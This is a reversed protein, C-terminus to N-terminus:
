YREMVQNKWEEIMENVLLTNRGSCKYLISDHGFKELINNINDKISSDIVELSNNYLNEDYFYMSFYYYLKVTDDDLRGNLEKFIIYADKFSLIRAMAVGKNFLVEDIFKMNIDNYKVRDLINDYHKIALKYEKNILCKDAIMKARMMYDGEKYNVLINNILDIDMSNYLNNSRLITLIADTLSLKSIDRGICQKVFRCLYEDIFNEDILHINEFIVYSLEEITYIDKRILKCYYSEGSCKVCLKYNIEDNNDYLNDDERIIYEIKKLNAKFISGFGRNEVKIRLLNTNDIFDTTIKLISPKRINPFLAGVFISFKKNNFKFQLYDDDFILVNIYKPSDYYKYNNDIISHEVINNKDLILLSLDIKPMADIIIHYKNQYSNFENYVKAYGGLIFLDKELFVRRNNCLERLAERLYGGQFVDSTLYVVDINDEVIEPIINAFLKDREELNVGLLSYDLKMSKANIIKPENGSVEVCVSNLNEEYQYLLQYNNYRINSTFRISYNILAEDYDMYEPVINIGASLLVTRIYQQESDTIIKKVIILKNVKMLEELYVKVFSDFNFHKSIKYEKDFSLDTYLVSVEFNVIHCVLFKEM